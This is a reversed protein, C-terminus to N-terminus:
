KAVEYAGTFFRLPIFSFAVVEFLRAVRVLGILPM